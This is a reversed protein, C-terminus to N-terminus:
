TPKCKTTHFHRSFWNLIMATCWSLCVALASSGKFEVLSHPCLTWACTLFTVWFDILLIVYTYQNYFHSMCKVGAPWFECSLWLFQAISCMWWSCFIGFSGNRGAGNMGNSWYLLVNVTSWPFLWTKEWSPLLPV